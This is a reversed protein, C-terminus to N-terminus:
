VHRNQKSLKMLIAVEIFTYVVYLVMCGFVGGKNISKGAISFYIFAAIVCIIMKSMIGGYMTRVVAHANKTQMSRTYLYFSVATALFLILNGVIMVDTDISWRSFM